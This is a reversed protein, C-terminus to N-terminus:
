RGRTRPRTDALDSALIAIIIDRIAEIAHRSGMERHCEWKILGDHRISARESHTDRPSTVVIETLRSDHYRERIDLGRVRLERGITELLVGSQYIDTPMGAWESRAQGTDRPLSFQPQGAHRARGPILAPAAWQVARETQETM